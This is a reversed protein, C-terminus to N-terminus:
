PPSELELRRCRRVHLGNEVRDWGAGLLATSEEKHESVLEVRLPVFALELESTGLLVDLAIDAHNAPQTVRAVRRDRDDRVM